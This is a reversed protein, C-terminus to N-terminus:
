VQYFTLQEKSRQQIPEGSQQKRKITDRMKTSCMKLHSGSFLWTPSLFIINIEVSMNSWTNIDVYSLLRSWLLSFHGNHFPSRLFLFLDSIKNLTNHTSWYYNMIFITCLKPTTKRTFKLTVLQHKEKFERM